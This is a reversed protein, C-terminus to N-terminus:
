DRYQTRFRASYLQLHLVVGVRQNKKGALRFQLVRASVRLASVISTAPKQKHKATHKKIKNKNKERDKM